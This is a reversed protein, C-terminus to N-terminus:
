RAAATRTYSAPDGPTAHVQSDSIPTLGGARAAANYQEVTVVSYQPKGPISIVMQDKDYGGKGNPAYVDYTYLTVPIGLLVVNNEQKGGNFQTELTTTEMVSYESSWETSATTEVYVSATVIFGVEAGVKLSAHASVSTSQSGGGGSGSSTGFSTGGTADYYYDSLDEFYPAAQLISIIKPNDFTYEKSRYEIFMTDDDVDPAALALFEGYYSGGSGWRNKLGPFGAYGLLRSVNGTGEVYVSCKNGWDDSTCYVVQEYGEENGDFNGAVASPYWTDDSGTDSYAGFYDNTLARDEITAGNVFIYDNKKMGGGAYCVVAPAAYSFGGRYTNSRVYGSKSTSTLKGNKGQNFLYVEVRVSSDAFVGPEMYAVVLDEKNDGNLNGFALSAYFNASSASPCIQKDWKQVLSGDYDCIYATATRKASFLAYALEDKGDGDADGLALSLVRGGTTVGSLASASSGNVKFIKDIASAYLEDKGDGDMDGAAIQILGSAIEADCRDDNWSEGIQAASGEQVGTRANFVWVKVFCAKGRKLLGIGAVHDDRGAGNPDYAALKLHVPYAGEKVADATIADQWNTVAAAKSGYYEVPNNADYVAPASYDGVVMIERIPNLAVRGQGYPNKGDNADFDSPPATNFGFGDNVGNIENVQAAYAPPPLAAAMGLAMALILASSIVRKMIAKM